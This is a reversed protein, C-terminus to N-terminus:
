PHRAKTTNEHARTRGEIPPRACVCARQTLTACQRVLSKVFHLQAGKSGPKTIVEGDKVAAKVAARITNRGLEEGLADEIARGSLGPQLALLEALAARAATIRTDTRSGGALALWRNGPDYDLRSEPIDVDRGFASLYRPSSPNEDQRVLRWEADPWDRLRSAGRSREAGHGMHHILFCEPVSADALVRELAALFRGTDPSKSEDLGLAAMVPGICDVLVAGAGTMLRTWEAAPAPALINLSAAAGRINVYSFRETHTIMQDNLWRRAIRAPMEADIIVLHGAAPTIPYRGLFSYGDCWSRILNDRLTTKGAKFQAALIVNGGAPWLGTIRWPPTDDPQTLFADGRYLRPIPPATEAALEDRATAEIRLMNKRLDVATREDTAHDSAQGGPKDFQAWFTKAEFPESM